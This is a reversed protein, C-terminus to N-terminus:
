IEERSGAAVARPSVVSPAPPELPAHPGTRVPETGALWRVSIAPFTLIIAIGVMLCIDMVIALTPFSM